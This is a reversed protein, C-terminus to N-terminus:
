QDNDGELNTDGLTHDIAAVLDQGGFPKTFFGSIDKGTARHQDGIEHRGTLLFVPLKPRTKKVIDLLEFGDMGPMGIDTILCNICSLDSTLLSRGSSFTAVTYGVSEFLNELSELVRPDDDVVAIVLKQSM